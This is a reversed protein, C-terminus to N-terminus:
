SKKAETEIERGLQSGAVSFFRSANEDVPARIYSQPPVNGHGYEVHAPYYWKAGPAIDLQERTPLPMAIKLQGRRGKVAKFKQRAMATKLAGTDVPVRDLVRPKLVETGAKKIARGILKRQVTRPLADLKGQLKKDGLVTIDFVQAM